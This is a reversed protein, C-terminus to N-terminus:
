FNLLTKLCVKGIVMIVYDTAPNIEKAGAQIAKQMTEEVIPVFLGIMATVGKASMPELADRTTKPLHFIAGEIEMEAVHISV